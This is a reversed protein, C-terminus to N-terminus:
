KLLVLKYYDNVSYTCIAQHYSNFKIKNIKQKTSYGIEYGYSRAIDYINVTSSVCFLYKYETGELISYKPVNLGLLVNLQEPKVNSTSLQKLQVFCINIFKEEFSEYNDISNTNTSQNIGM